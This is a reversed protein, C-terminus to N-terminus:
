LYGRSSIPLEPLTIRRGSIHSTPLAMWHVGGGTWREVDVGVVESPELERATGKVLVSWGTRHFPDVQDVQVSIPFQRMLYRKTGPDTRFVVLDDVVVFNVPVVHPGEGPLAVAVRGISSQRLLERCEQPEITELQNEPM